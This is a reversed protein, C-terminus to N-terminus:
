DLYYNDLFNLCQKTYRNKTKNYKKHLFKKFDNFTYKGHNKGRLFSLLQFIFVYRNIIKNTDYSAQFIRIEITKSNQTNIASYRGNNWIDAWETLDSYYKRESIEFITDENNRFFQRLNRILKESFINKSIHLHNGAGSPNYECNMYDLLTDIWYQYEDKRKELFPLSIINSVLEFSVSNDWELHFLENEGMTRAIEYIDDSDLLSMFELEFGITRNQAQVLKKFEYDHYDYIYM